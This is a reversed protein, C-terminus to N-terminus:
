GGAHALDITAAMINEACEAAHRLQDLSRQVADHDRGARWAQVGAIIEAELAPDVKLIHGETGEGAGATLPSPEPETFRNGGVVTLAGDEIHRMREAHSRVLRGKLEDIAEFAGGLALVDDLEASASDVLEATRAEVVTSGEFLDPY